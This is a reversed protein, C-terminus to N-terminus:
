EKICELIRTRLDDLLKPDEKLINRFQEKGQCINSNDYQVWSGSKTVIGYEEALIIIDSIRSLGEDFYIEFKAEKYPAAVKNKIVRARIENAVKSEGVKIVGMRTLEIRVSSFFNLAKGGTTTNPNGFMVGIKSRVQNTFIVATNTKNVIGALKRTAQSMMRAQLGMHSDGIEGELEAKPTLAAVSDIVIVDVEGSKILSEVINLAQEGYDPQSFLLNDIDVNLRKAYNVDFAQETDIFAAIGGNKQCESIISLCLTSKGTMENGYIETVRGRPIGGVGIANDLSISGTSIVDIEVKDKSNLKTISGKGFQKEISKITADLANNKEEKPEQTEEKKKRPM